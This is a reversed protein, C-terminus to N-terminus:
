FVDAFFSSTHASLDIFMMVLFLATKARGRRKSKCVPRCSKVEPIGRHRRGIVNVAIQHVQEINLPIVSGFPSNNKHRPLGRGQLTSFSTPVM